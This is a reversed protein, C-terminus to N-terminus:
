LRIEIVIQELCESYQDSGRTQLISRIDASEFAIQERNEVISNLLVDGTFFSRM